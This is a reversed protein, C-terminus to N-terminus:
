FSTSMYVGSEDVGSCAVIGRAQRIVGTTWVIQKDVEEAYKLRSILFTEIVQLREALTSKEM